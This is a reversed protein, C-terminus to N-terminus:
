SEKSNKGLPLPWIRNHKAGYLLIFNTKGHPIWAFIRAISRMM